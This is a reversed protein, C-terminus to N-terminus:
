KKKKERFFNAVIYSGPILTALERSRAVSVYRDRLAAVILVKRRGHLTLELFFIHLWTLMFSFSPFDYSAPGGM